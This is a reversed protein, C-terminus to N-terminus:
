SSSINEKHKKSLQKLLIKFDGETLENEETQNESSRLEHLNEMLSFVESLYKTMNKDKM